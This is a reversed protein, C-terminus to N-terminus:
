LSVDWPPRPGPTSISNRVQMTQPNLLYIRQSPPVAVWINSSDVWELGHAGTIRINGPQGFKVVGKGPTDYREITSGDYDLKLLEASYTSSVWLFGVGETVGSSGVSETPSKTLISGDEYSLSICTAILRTSLGYAM